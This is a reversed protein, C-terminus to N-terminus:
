ASTCDPTFMRAVVAFDAEDASYISLLWVHFASTEAEVMQDMVCTAAEHSGLGHELRAMVEAVVTEPHVCEFMAEIAKLRAHDGIMFDASTYGAGDVVSVMCDLEADTPATHSFAVGEVQSPSPAPLTYTPASGPKGGALLSYVSMVVTASIALLSFFIGASSRREAASAEQQDQPQNALPENAADIEVPKINM